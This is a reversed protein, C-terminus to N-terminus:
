TDPSTGYATPTSGKLNALVLHEAVEEANSRDAGATSLIRCTLRRLAEATRIIM